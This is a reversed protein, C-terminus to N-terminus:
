WGSPQHRPCPGPVSWRAVSCVVAVLAPVVEDGAAATYAALTSVRVASTPHERRSCGCAACM